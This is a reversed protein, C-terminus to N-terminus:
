IRRVLAGIPLGRATLAEDWEKIHKYMGPLIMMCDDRGKDDL